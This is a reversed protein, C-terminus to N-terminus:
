ERDLPNKILNDKAGPKDLPNTLLGPGPDHAEGTQPRHRGDDRPASDADLPNQAPSGPAGGTTAGSQTTHDM